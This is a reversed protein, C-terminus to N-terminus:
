RSVYVEWTMKKCGMAWDDKVVDNLYLGGLRGVFGELQVAEDEEDEPADDDGVSEAESDSGSEAGGDEHESPHSSQSGDNSAYDHGHDQHPADNPGDTAGVWNQEKAKCFRWFARLGMGWLPHARGHGHAM